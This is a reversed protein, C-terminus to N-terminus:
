FFGLCNVDTGQVRVLMLNIQIQKIVIINFPIFIIKKQKRKWMLLNRFCHVRDKIHYIQIMIICIINISTTSWQVSFMSCQVCNLRLLQTLMFYICSMIANSRISNFLSIVIKNKNSSKIWNCSKPKAYYKAM